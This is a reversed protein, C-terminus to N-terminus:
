TLLNGGDIFLNSGDIFAGYDSATYLIFNVIEIPDAARGLLTPMKSMAQRTLVPGPSVCYARVGHKAGARALGKVFNFLGSKATGYMAGNGDGDMGTVSGICVIVGSGQAVMTPMCARSFYVPGKLNVDLGWDIVEIPQKYFPVPSKCCRAENGGALCILLDIKGYNDLAATAAKEADSFKRVDTQVVIADGGEAKIAQAAVELAELNIDCMVVKAGARALEQSALLGMGSAAGTIVAVKGDYNLELTKM